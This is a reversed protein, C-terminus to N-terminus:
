RNGASHSETTRDPHVIKYVSLDLVGAGASGCGATGQGAALRPSTACTTGPVRFPTFSTPGGRRVRSRPNQGHGCGQRGVRLEARHRERDGIEVARQREVLVVDAKAQVATVAVGRMEAHAAGVEKQERLHRACPANAAGRTEVM